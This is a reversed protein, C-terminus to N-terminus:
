GKRAPSRKGEVRSDSVAPNEIAPVYDLTSTPAKGFAHVVPEGREVPVEGKLALAGAAVLPAAEQETLEREDGRSYDRGDGHMARHVTYTKKSSM